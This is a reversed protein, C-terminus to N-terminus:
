QDNEERDHCTCLCRGIEEIEAHWATGDCREHKQDLCVGRIPRPRGPGFDDIPFGLSIEILGQDVQRSYSLHWELVIPGRRPTSTGGEPSPTGAAFPAYPDAFPDESRSGSPTSSQDFLDSPASQAFPDAHPRPRGM